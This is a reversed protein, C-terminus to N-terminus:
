TPVDTPAAIPPLTTSAAPNLASPGIPAPMITTAINDSPATRQIDRVSRTQATYFRLTRCGTGGINGPERRAMGRQLTVTGCTPVQDAGPIEWYQEAAAPPVSISKRCRCM